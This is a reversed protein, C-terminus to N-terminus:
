EVNIYHLATAACHPVVLPLRIEIKVASMGNDANAVAMRMIDFLNGPLEVPQAEVAIRYDILQLYLKGIAQAANTAILIILEKQDVRTGLGVLVRELQCREVIAALTHKGYLATEMAARRKSDLYGTIRLNLCGHVLISMYGEQGKVVEIGPLALKGFTIHASAYQLADLAHTANVHGRWLEGLAQLLGTVLLAGTENGVLYLAAIAAAALEKGM